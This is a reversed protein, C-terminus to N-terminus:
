AEFGTLTTGSYKESVAGGIYLKGKDSMNEKILRGLKGQVFRQIEGSELVYRSYEAKNGIFVTKKYNFVKNGSGVPFRPKVVPRPPRIRQGKAYAQWVIKRQTAWPEYNEVKHNATVPTNQAKWSSAFFGTFVPMTTPESKNQNSLQFHVDKILKNFDRSIKKDLDKPLDKLFKTAM